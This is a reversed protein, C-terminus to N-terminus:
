KQLLPIRHHGLHKFINRICQYIIYIYILYVHMWRCLQLVCSLCVMVMAVPEIVCMLPQQSPLEKVEMVQKYDFQFVSSGPSEPSYQVVLPELNHFKLTVGHFEGM